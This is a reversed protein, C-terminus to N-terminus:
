HYLLSNTAMVLVTPVFRRIDEEKDFDFLWDGLGIDQWM